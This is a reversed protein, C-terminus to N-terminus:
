PLVRAVVVTLDDAQVGAGRYADAREVIRARLEAASGSDERIWGALPAEGLEVGEANTTETLGDSFAVIADGPDLQVRGSEYAAGDFLGVVM